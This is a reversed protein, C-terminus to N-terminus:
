FSRFSYLQATDKIGTFLSLILSFTFNDTNSRHGSHFSFHSQVLLPLVPCLNGVPAKEARWASPDAM